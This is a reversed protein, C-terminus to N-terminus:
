LGSQDKHMRYGPELNRRDMRYALRKGNLDINYPDVSFSNSGTDFFVM